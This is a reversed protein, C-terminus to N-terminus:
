VIIDDQTSWMFRSMNTMMYNYEFLGTTDWYKNVSLFYSALLTFSYGYFM